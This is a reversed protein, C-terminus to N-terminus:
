LAHSQRQLDLVWGWRSCPLLCCGGLVLLQLQNFEARLDAVDYSVRLAGAITENYRLPLVVYAVESIFGPGVGQTPQGHLAQTVSPNNYVTGLRERDEGRSSALIYGDANLLLVRADDLGSIESLVHQAGATTALASPERLVLKSALNAQYNLQQILNQTFFDELTFLLYLILLPMVLLIPLIHSVVLKNRLSYIM